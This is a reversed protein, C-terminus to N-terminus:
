TTDYEAWFINMIKVFALLFLYKTEHTKTATITIAYEIDILFLPAFFYNHKLHRQSIITELTHVHTHTHSLISHISLLM